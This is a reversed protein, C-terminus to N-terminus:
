KGVQIQGEATVLQNALETSNEDFKKEFWHNLFDQATRGIDITHNPHFEEYIFSHIYGPFQIDRIQEQFLEETIFKYIVSLEYQGQVELIINKSHLIEMIRKLEGKVEEPKLDDVAKYVPKGIYEYISVQKAKAFSDEFSQVNKLFEAEVEPDLEEMNGGFLANREAQMKLKLIENELRVNQEPDDSFNEEKQKTEEDM